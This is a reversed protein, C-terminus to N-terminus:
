GRYIKKTDQYTKRLGTNVVTNKNLNVIIDKGETDKKGTFFKKITTLINYSKDKNSNEYVKKRLMKAKKQNM